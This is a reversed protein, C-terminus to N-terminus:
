GCYKGVDAILKAFDPSEGFIMTTQMERYDTRYLDIFDVPPIFKLTSITLERYNVSKVPTLKERHECITKLLKSNSLAKSGYDTKLIQYIDYLHRSMRHHKVKNTEKQFEEHLLIMKELLTKEPSATQVMFSDEAFESEPYHMDIISRVPMIEMPETLSRAGMEILVRSQLYNDEEFVSLYNVHVVEPDQDSIKVNPVEISFLSDDIGYEAFSRHLIEPLVESSFKHSSRRLKRIQGKTLEDEFGLYNRDVSFDIDESFREILGFVKSLSTGGKFIIHNSIESKFLMRLVLTVWVDKEISFPPLGTESSIKTFLEIQDEKSLSLWNNM